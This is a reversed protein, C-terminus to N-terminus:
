KVIGEEFNIVDVPTGLPVMNEVMYAKVTASKYSCLLNLLATMYMEKNNHMHNSIYNGANAIFVSIKPFYFVGVMPQGNLAIAKPDKELIETVKDEGIIAFGWKLDSDDKRSFYCIGADIRGANYFKDLLGSGDYMNDSDLFLVDGSLTNLSLAALYATELNGRTTKPLALINIDKGFTEKLYPVYAIDDSRMAFTLSHGLSRRAHQNYIEPISSLTHELITKGCTMIFPKSTEYGADKFRQGIGAMLVVINM